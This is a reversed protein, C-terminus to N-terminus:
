VSPKNKFSLTGTGFWKIAVALVLCTLGIGLAINGSKLGISPLSMASFLLGSAAVAIAFLNALARTFSADTSGVEEASLPTELRRFFARVRERYEPTADLLAGSVFFVVICSIIQFLTAIEWSLGDTLNLIFGVLIGTVVTFLAGVSNTKPYLLGLVLPIALPLAFLGTLIKNAEFASGLRGIFFSGAVVITGVLVINLRAVKILQKDTAEPNILRQYIDKTLVASMVNFESNLSSMTASFMAAIMLGLLGAPLLHVALAVYAQEPDALGPLIDAAAIAPLLFIIPFIFLLAASLFGLKRTAAEDKVSYFRQIFVWNGNYKVLLLLYYVFLWTPQGKPGNFWDFHQPLKDMLSTLGGAADLSLPVMLVSVFVLIIFQLTDMVVVAWVGGVITFLTTVVGSLVIAELFSLDTAATLFIGMAYQRVMNDLFRMGLGTWGFLQRVNNNFRTELYEVPTLIRSRVWKKGVVLAAFVFPITAGWLVTVGILGDNYAIGAYAVFVFTSLSGMFNSIASIGWPITNGGKFYGKIDKIFWGFFAGVGAMLALYIVISVYDLTALKGM